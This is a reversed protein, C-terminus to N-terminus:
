KNIRQIPIQFLFSPYIEIKTRFIRKVLKIKSKVSTGFLFYPHGFSVEYEEEENKCEDTKHPSQRANKMMVVFLQM